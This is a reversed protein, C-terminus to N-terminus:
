RKICARTNIHKKAEKKEKNNTSDSHPAQVPADVLQDGFCTSSFALIRKTFFM